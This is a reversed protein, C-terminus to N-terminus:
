GGGPIAVQPAVGEQVGWFEGGSLDNQDPPETRSSRELPHIPETRQLGCLIHDKQAKGLTCRIECALWQVNM